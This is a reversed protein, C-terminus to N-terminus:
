QRWRIKGSLRSNRTLPLYRNERDWWVPHKRKWWVKWSRLAPLDKSQIIMQKRANAESIHNDSLGFKDDAKPLQYIGQGCLVGQTCRCHKILLPRHEKRYVGGICVLNIDANERQVHADGSLQHYSHRQAQNIIRWWYSVHAALRIVDNDKIYTVALAAKGKYPPEGEAWRIAKDYKEAQYAGGHTRVLRGMKELEKLDRRITEESCGFLTSLSPVLVFGQKSLEQSIIKHREIKLM